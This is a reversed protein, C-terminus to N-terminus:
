EDVHIPNTFQCVNPSRDRRNDWGAALNTVAGKPEMEIPFGTPEKQWESHWKELETHIAKEQTHHRRHLKAM